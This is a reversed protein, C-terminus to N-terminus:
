FDFWADPFIMADLCGLNVWHKVLLLHGHSRSMLLPNTVTILESPNLISIALDKFMTKKFVHSDLHQLKGPTRNRAEACKIRANAM